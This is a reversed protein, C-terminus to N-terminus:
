KSSAIYDQNLVESRQRIKGEWDVGVVQIRAVDIPKFKALVQHIGESQFFIGNLLKVVHYPPTTLLLIIVFM